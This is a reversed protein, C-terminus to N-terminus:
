NKSFRNLIENIAGNVNDVSNEGNIEFLIGKKRYYEILPETQERYVKLRNKITEVKDDDRQYLEGGCKDCIGEKQPPTYKLHYIAGCNKCVRRLSLREVIIPDSVDVFIVGDIKENELAKELGEAQAITRPFGDLIYGNKCDAEQVRNKVLKIMIDDPVLEGKEMYEKAKKGLETNNKVNERLIDGTSIQPIGFKQSVFKAQTGKGAGPPGLLILRV